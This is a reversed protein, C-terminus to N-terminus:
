LIDDGPVLKIENDERPYKFKAIVKKGGKFFKINIDIKKQTEKLKRDYEEEASILPEFIELYDQGDKYCLKVSKLFNILFKPKEQNDSILWAVFKIKDKGNKKM